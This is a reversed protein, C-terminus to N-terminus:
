KRLATNFEEPWTTAAHHTDSEDLFARRSADGAFAYSYVYNAGYYDVSGSSLMEFVPFHKRQDHNSWDVPVGPKSLSNACKAMVKTRYDALMEEHFEAPIEAVTKADPLGTIEFCEKLDTIETFKKM